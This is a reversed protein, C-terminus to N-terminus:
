SQCLWDFKMLADLKNINVAVFNSKSWADPMLYTTRIWKTPLSLSYNRLSFIKFYNWEHSTLPTVQFSSFSNRKAFILNHERCIELFSTKNREFQEFKEIWLNIFEFSKIAVVFISHMKREYWIDIEHKHMLFIQGFYAIIKPILQKKLNM